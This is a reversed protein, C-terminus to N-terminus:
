LAFGQLLQHMDCRDSRVRTVPLDPPMWQRLRTQYQPVHREQSNRLGSIPNNLGVIEIMEEFVRDAADDDATERLRLAVVRTRRGILVLRPLTALHRSKGQWQSPHFNQRSQGPKRGFFHSIERTKLKINLFNLTPAEGGETCRLGNSFSYVM